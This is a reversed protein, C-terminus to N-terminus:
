SLLKKKFPVYDTGLTEEKSPKVMLEKVIKPVILSENLIEEVVSKFKIPHATSLFVGLHDDELHNELSQYAIAAHPESIYGKNRLMKLAKKTQEENVSECIFECFNEQRLLDTRIWNSPNSVDMANSLTMITKNPQWKNTSLYRSVTDNSNTAAIIKQVPLGMKTAMMAATVNGFNGSPVSFILKKDRLEHRLTFYAEFFYCIQAMLRCINISNASNLKRKLLVDKDNVAKKILAQCDDFTGNIAFTRVNNGLTTFFKQQIYSVKNKPYLVIVEFDKLNFFAQAAAAGTDGSTATLITTLENNNLHSLVNALFKAGFDKFALTPGHFLELTKINQDISCIKIEFNFTKEIITSFDKESICGQVFPYLISFFREHSTLEALKMLDHSSFCPLNEPFFLGGDKALGNTVASKFTVKELKNQTNYFLM